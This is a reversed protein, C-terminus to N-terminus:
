ALELNISCGLPKKCKKLWMSGQRLLLGEHGLKEMKPLSGLEGEWESINCVRGPAVYTNGSRASIVDAGEKGRM